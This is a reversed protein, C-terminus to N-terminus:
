GGTRGLPFHNLSPLIIMFGHLHKEGTGTTEKELTQVATTM